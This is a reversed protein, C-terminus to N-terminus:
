VSTMWSHQNKDVRFHGTNWIFRNCGNTFDPAMKTMGTLPLLCMTIGMQNDLILRLNQLRPTLVLAIFSHRPEFLSVLLGFGEEWSLEKTARKGTPDWDFGLEDLKTYLITICTRTLFKINFHMMRMIEHSRVKVFREAM